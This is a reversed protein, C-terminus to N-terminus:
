SQAALAMSEFHFNDKGKRLFSWIINAYIKNTIVMRTHQNAFCLTDIGDIGVVWLDSRICNLSTKLYIDIDTVM